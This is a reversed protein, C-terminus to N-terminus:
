AAIARTVIREAARRRVATQSPTAVEETDACGGGSGGGDGGAGGESSRSVM